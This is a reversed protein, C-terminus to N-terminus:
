RSNAIVSTIIGTAVAILVYQNDVRRWEHGRPPARLGHKRYDSVRDGRHGLALREGRKHNRWGEHRGNDHRDDRRDDHRNDRHDDRDDDHRAQQPGRDDRHDNRDQPPGHDRDRGDQGAAFAGGSALLSLALVSGIIRKM